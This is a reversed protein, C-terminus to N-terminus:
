FRMPPPSGGAIRADTAAEIPVRGTVVREGVKLGSRIEAMIKNNLGIEVDRIMVNGGDGLVQVQGRGGPGKTLAAAPIALVGEAKDLVIHVEATMYTRLRQETNPVNFVGNYYIASSSSSSSSSSGSASTTSFSSDSIISEPAPEISDLTAEYRRGVDGLVTFYVPQGPQVRIIDAESIETRITMRDIQGLIVITPASQAANVTQGEQTVIRLITGNIPAKIRTYGLNADATEAAVEAEIIQAQLSEIQAQATKVDAQASQLDARSVANIKINQEQRELNQRAYVLTAQKEALQARVSALAALATKLANEQTVSDIQAILEGERVTQGLEVNVSVVKGSTQAGVAVLKIPKLTGTALVTEEVDSVIVEATMLQPPGPPSFIFHSVALVLLSAALVAMCIWFLRRRRMRTQSEPNSPQMM